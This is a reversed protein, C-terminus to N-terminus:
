VLLPMRKGLVQYVTKPIETNVTSQRTGDLGVWEKRNHGSFAAAVLRTAITIKGPLNKPVAATDIAPTQSPTVTLINGSDTDDATYSFSVSGTIGSNNQEILTVTQAGTSPATGQSLLQTFASDAYVGITATGATATLRWYFTATGTAGSLKWGSTQAATDGAVTMAYICPQDYGLKGWLYLIRSPRFLNWGRDKGGLGRNGDHPMDVNIVFQRSSTLLYVRNADAHYDTESILETGNGTWGPPSAQYAVTADGIVAKTITVIPTQPMFADRDFVNDTFQDFVVPTVTYDHLIWDRGTYEDVWRSARDIAGLLEDTRGPTSAVDSPKMKLEEIIAALPIYPNVPQYSM